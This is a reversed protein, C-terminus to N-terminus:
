NSHKQKRSRQQSHQQNRYDPGTIIIEQVVLQDKLRSGVGPKKAEIENSDLASTIITPIRLNHRYVILQYLKDEAWPTSSEAALDDLVLLPATKIQEFMEDYTLKSEPSFAARLHDLLAPVFALITAKGRKITEGSAAMALHTKGCGHAGTFFLWGEPSQAFSQAAKVAMKLSERQGADSNMSGHPDFTQFSMRDLM